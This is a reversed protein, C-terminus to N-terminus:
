LTKELGEIGLARRLRLEIENMEGQDAAHDYGVLHLAGHLILQHIEIELSHGEAAANGRATEVSIVIDGLFGAMENGGAIGTGAVDADDRWPFSLVDTPADKGRFERNLQAIGADDTLTVDFDGGAVGMRKLEARVRAAFKRIQDLPRTQSKRSSRDTKDLHVLVNKRNSCIM